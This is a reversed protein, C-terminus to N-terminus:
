LRLIDSTWRVLLGTHSHQGYLLIIYLCSCSVVSCFLVWRLVMKLNCIYYKIINCVKSFVFFAEGNKKLHAFFLLLAGIRPLTM